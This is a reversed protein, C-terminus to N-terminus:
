SRSSTVDRVLYSWRYTGAGVRYRPLTDPGVAGSGVGRHAADLWVFTEAHPVLDVTHAAAAFDEDTLHAVTVDLGGLDAFEIVGTADRLRIWRVGTRNGTGQPHVYFV